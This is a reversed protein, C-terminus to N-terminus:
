ATRKDYGHFATYVALVKPVILVIEFEPMQWGARLGLRGMRGFGNIGIRITM